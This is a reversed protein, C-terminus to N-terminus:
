LTFADGEREKVHTYVPERSVFIFRQVDYVSPGWGGFFPGYDFNVQARTRLSFGVFKGNTQGNKEVLGPDARSWEALCQIKHANLLRCKRM